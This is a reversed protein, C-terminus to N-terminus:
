NEYGDRGVLWDISVEFYDALLILTTGTPVVNEHVIRWITANSVGLERALERQSIGRSAILDALRSGIKTDM